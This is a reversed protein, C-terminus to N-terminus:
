HTLAPYRNRHPRFFGNALLPHSPHLLMVVGRKGNWRGGDEEEERTRLLLNGGGKVHHFFLFLLDFVHNAEAVSPYVYM